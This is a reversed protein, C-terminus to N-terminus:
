EYNEAIDSSFKWFIWEIKEQLFVYTKWSSEFGKDFRWDSVNKM